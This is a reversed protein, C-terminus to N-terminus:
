KSVPYDTGPSVVNKMDARKDRTLPHSQIHRKLSGENLTQQNHVDNLHSLRWEQGAQIMSLRVTNILIYLAGQSNAHPWGCRLDM